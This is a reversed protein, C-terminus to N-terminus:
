KFVVPPREAAGVKEATMEIKSNVQETLKACFGLVGDAVDNQKMASPGIGGAPVADEDSATIVDAHNLLALRGEFFIEIAPVFRALRLRCRLM